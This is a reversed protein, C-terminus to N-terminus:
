TAIGGRVLGPSVSSRGTLCLVDVNGVSGPSAWVSVDSSEPGMIPGRAGGKGTVLSESLCTFLAKIFNEGGWGPGFFVLTPHDNRRYKM